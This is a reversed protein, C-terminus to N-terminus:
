ALSMREIDIGALVKVLVTDASAIDSLESRCKGDGLESIAM